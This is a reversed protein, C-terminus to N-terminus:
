VCLSPEGVILRRVPVSSSFWDCGGLPEFRSLCRGLRPSLPLHHCGLSNRVALRNRDRLRPTSPRVNLGKLGSEVGPPRTQFVCHGLKFSATAQKSNRACLASHGFGMVSGALTARNIVAGLGHGRSALYAAEFARHAALGHFSPVRSPHRGISQDRSRDPGDPSIKYSCETGPPTRGEHSPIKEINALAVLDGNIFLPFVKGTDLRGLLLRRAGKGVQGPVLNTAVRKTLHAYSDAISVPRNNFGFENPFQALCPM